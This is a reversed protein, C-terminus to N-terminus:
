FCDLFNYWILRAARTRIIDTIVHNEDTEIPIPEKNEIMEKLEDATCIDDEGDGPLRLPAFLSSFMEVSNADNFDYDSLNLTDLFQNYLNDSNGVVLERHHYSTSKVHFTVSQLTGGVGRTKATVILKGGGSFRKDVVSNDGELYKTAEEPTISHTYEVIFPKTVDTPKKSVTKPYYVKDDTHPKGMIDVLSTPPNMNSWHELCGVYTLYGVPGVPEADARIREQTTLIFRYERNSFNCEKPFLVNDKLMNPDCEEFIETMSTTFPIHHAAWSSPKHIWRSDGVLKVGKPILNKSTFWQVKGNIKMISMVTGESYPRIFVDSTRYTKTTFGTDFSIVSEKGSGTVSINDAVYEDRYPISQRLIANRYVITGRVRDLIEKPTPKNKDEIFHVLSLGEIDALQSAGAFEKPSKKTPMQFWIESGEPLGLIPLLEQRKALTASQKDKFSEGVYRNFTNGQRQM